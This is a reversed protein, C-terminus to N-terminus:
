CRAFFLRRDSGKIGRIPWRVRRPKQGVCNQRRARAPQRCGSQRRGDAVQVLGDMPRHGEAKGRAFPEQALRERSVAAYIWKSKTHEYETNSARSNVTTSKLRNCTTRRAGIRTRACRASM